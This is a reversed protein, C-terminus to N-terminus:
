KLDEKEKQFLTEAPWWNLEGYEAYLDDYLKLLKKRM